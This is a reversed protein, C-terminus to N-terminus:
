KTKRSIFYIFIPHRILLFHCISIHVSICTSARVNQDTRNACKEEQLMNTKNTLEHVRKQLNYNEKTKGEVMCNLKAIKENLKAKEMQHDMSLKAIQMHLENVELKMSGCTGCETGMEDMGEEESVEILEVLFVSPVANKAIIIKPGGCIENALFHQSCVYGGGCYSDNNAERIAQIWKRRM